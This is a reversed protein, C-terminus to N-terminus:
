ASAYRYATYTSESIGGCIQASLFVFMPRMQKGKRTVIYHTIRDLLPANSQMSAKFRVEFEDLERAIPRRITDLSLAMPAFTIFALYPLPTPRYPLTNAIKAGDSHSDGYM